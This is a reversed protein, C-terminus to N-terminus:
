IALLLLSYHVVPIPEPRAPGAREWAVPAAMVQKFALGIRVQQHSSIARSHQFVLLLRIHLQPRDSTSLTNPGDHPGVRIRPTTTMVRALARFSAHSCDVLLIAGIPGAPM